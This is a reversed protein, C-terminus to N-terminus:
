PTKSKSSQGNEASPFAQGIAVRAFEHLATREATTPRREEATARLALGEVLDLIMEARLPASKGDGLTKAVAATLGARNSKFLDAISPNRFAEATLELTLLANEIRQRDHGLPRHKEKDQSKQVRQDERGVDQM